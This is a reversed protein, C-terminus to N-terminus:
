FNIKDAVIYHPRAKVEDFIAGIYEGIIGLFVLQVGGFISVLVVLTSWGPPLTHNIFYEIVAYVAFCFGFFAFLLGVTTAARLPKTSFSILGFVAFRVLRGISYNSSGAYRKAAQFSVAVQRFGMWSIVGRLFLNRERVQTQLVTVVRRSILRFDSANKQIPVDSIMNVCKYFVAGLFRRVFSVDESDARVTYVVDNGREFEALLKPILEPPHQMDSDMTIVIDADAYDIGALLAMQHGFNASFNLISVRSDKEAIGKLILFTTDTAGDVVFLIRSNYASLKSLESSLATYFIAIGEAENMAPCVVTLTKM